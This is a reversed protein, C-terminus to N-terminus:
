KYFYLNTPTIKGSKEKKGYIVLEPTDADVKHLLSRATEGYAIKAKKVKEERRVPHDETNAFKIKDSQADLAKADIGTLLFYDGSNLNKLSRINQQCIGDSNRRGNNYNGPILYDAIKSKFIKRINRNTEQTKPNQLEFKDNKLLINIFHNLASNIQKEDGTIKNNVLVRKIPIVAKFNPQNKPNNISNIM